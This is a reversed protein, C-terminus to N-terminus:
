FAEIAPPVGGYADLPQLPIAAEATEPEVSVTAGSAGPEHLRVTPSEAPLLLLTATDTL